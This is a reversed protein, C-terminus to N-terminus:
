ITVDQLEWIATLSGEGARMLRALTAALAVHDGADICTTVDEAVRALKRMGIQDAIAILSRASKRLDDRRGLLHLRNCHSLRIALEEMARCIIDEAAHPGLDEYLGGLREEDLQINEVPQFHLVHNVM